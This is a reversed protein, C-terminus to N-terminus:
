RTGDNFIKVLSMFNIIMLVVVAVSFTAGVKTKFTEEHNFHVGIPHGFMDFGKIYSIIGLDKM